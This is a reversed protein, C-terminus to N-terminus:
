AVPSLSAATAALKRLWFGPNALAKERETLDTLGLAWVFGKELERASLGVNGALGICPVGTEQCQKVIQGVGKGMLTSADIRGEGTIVLDAWALHQKLNAQRAFLDFGPRLVGGLFAQL